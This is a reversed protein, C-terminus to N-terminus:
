CSRREGPKKDLRIVKGDCGLSCVDPRGSKYVYSKCKTCMWFRKRNRSKM